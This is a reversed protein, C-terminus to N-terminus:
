YSLIKDFPAKLCVKHTNVVISKLRSFSRYISLTV